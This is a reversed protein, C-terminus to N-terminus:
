HVRGHGLPNEFLKLGFFNASIKRAKLFSSFLCGVVIAAELAM